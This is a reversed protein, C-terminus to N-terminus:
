LISSKQFYKLFITYKHPIDEPIDVMIGIIM